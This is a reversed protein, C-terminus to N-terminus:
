DYEEEVEIAPNYIADDPRVELIIQTRNNVQFAFSLSATQM